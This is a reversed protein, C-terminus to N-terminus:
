EGMQGISAFLADPSGMSVFLASFEPNGIVFAAGARELVEPGGLLEATSDLLRRVQDYTSWTASSMLEAASRTEGATASVRDITGEPCSALYSMVYGTVVGSFQRGSTAPLSQGM